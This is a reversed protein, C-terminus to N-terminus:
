INTYRKRVSDWWKWKSEIIFSSMAFQLLYDQNETVNEIMMKNVIQRKRSTERCFNHIIWKHPIKWSNVSMNILLRSLCITLMLFLCSAVGYNAAPASSHLEATNCKCANSLSGASYKMYCNGYILHFWRFNEMLLQSKPLHPLTNREKKKKKKLFAPFLQCSQPM